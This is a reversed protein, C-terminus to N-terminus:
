LAVQAVVWENKFSCKLANQRNGHQKKTTNAFVIMQQSLPTSLELSINAFMVTCYVSLM